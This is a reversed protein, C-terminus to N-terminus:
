NRWVQDAVESVSGGPARERADQAALRPTVCLRPTLSIGHSDTVTISRRRSNM